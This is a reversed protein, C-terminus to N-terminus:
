ETEQGGGVGDGMLAEGKAWGLCFWLSSLGNVSDMAALGLPGLAPPSAHVPCWSLGVSAGQCIM